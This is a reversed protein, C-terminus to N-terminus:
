GEGILTFHLNVSRLDVFDGARCDMVSDEEFDGNPAPVFDGAAEEGLGNIGRHEIICLSDIVRTICRDAISSSRIRITLRPSPLDLNPLSRSQELGLLNHRKM